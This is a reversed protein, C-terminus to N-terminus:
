GVNYNFLYNKLFLGLILIEHLVLNEQPIDSNEM